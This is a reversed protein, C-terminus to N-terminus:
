SNKPKDIIGNVTTRNRNSCPCYLIKETCPPNTGGPGWERPPCGNTRILYEPKILTKM